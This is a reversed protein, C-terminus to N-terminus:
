SHSTPSPFATLIRYFGKFSKFLRAFTIRKLFSKSRRCRRAAVAAVRRSTLDAVRSTFADVLGVYIAERLTSVALKSRNEWANRDIETTKPRNQDTSHGLLRSMSRGLLGPWRGASARRFCLPTSSRRSTRRAMFVSFMYSFWTFVIVDNTINTPKSYLNQCTKFPKKAM